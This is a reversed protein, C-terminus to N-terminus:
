TVASGSVTVTQTTSGPQLAFDFTTNQSIALAIGTRSQTTFGSATVTISYSGPPIQTMVYTGTSNTVTTRVFGMQTNQLRIEANPVVAGSQDRVTGSIQATDFQAHAPASCCLLALMVILCLRLQLRRISGMGATLCEQTQVSIM